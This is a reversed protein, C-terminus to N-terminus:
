ILYGGLLPRYAATAELEIGLILVYFVDFLMFYIEIISYVQEAHLIMTPNVPPLGEPYAMLTPPPFPVVDFSDGKFPLVLLFTPFIGFEDHDEYTFPLHNESFTFGIGLHYILVDRTNFKFECLDGKYGVVKHPEVKMEEDEDM